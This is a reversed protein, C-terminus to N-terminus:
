SFCSAAIRAAGSAAARIVFDSPAAGLMASRAAHVSTAFANSLRSSVNVLYVSSAHGEELDRSAMEEALGAEAEAGDSERREHVLPEESCVTERARAQGGAGARGRM